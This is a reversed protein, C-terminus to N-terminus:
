ICSISKIISSKGARISNVTSTRLFPLRDTGINTQKNSQLGGGNSLPGNPGCIIPPRIITVTRGRPSSIPSSSSNTFRITHNIFASAPLTIMNTSTNLTTQRNNYNNGFSESVAAFTTTTTMTTSLPLRIINPSLANNKSPSLLSIPRFRGFNNISNQLPQLQVSHTDDDFLECKPEIYGDIDFSSGNDHSCESGTVIVDTTTSTTTITIAATTNTNTIITNSLTNIISNSTTSTATNSADLCNGISNESLVTTIEVPRCQHDDDLPESKFIALISNPSSSTVTTTTTITTTLYTSSM